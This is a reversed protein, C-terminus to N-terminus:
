FSEFEEGELSGLLSTYHALTPREEEYEACKVDGDV